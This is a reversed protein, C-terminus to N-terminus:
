VHGGVRGHYKEADEPQMQAGDFTGMRLAGAQRRGNAVMVITITAFPCRCADRITLM